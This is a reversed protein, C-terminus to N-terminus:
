QGARVPALLPEDITHGEGGRRAVAPALRRREGAPHSTHTRHGHGAPLDQDGGPPDRVGTSGGVEVKRFLQWVRSGEGQGAPQRGTGVRDLDAGDRQVAAVELARAAEVPECHCRPREQPGTAPLTLPCASSIAFSFSRPWTAAHFHPDYLPGSLNQSGMRLAERAKLLIPSCPWFDLHLDQPDFVVRGHEVTRSDGDQRPGFPGDPGPAGPPWAAPRSGGPGCSTRPLWGRVATRGSPPRRPRPRPADTIPPPKRRARPVPGSPEGVTRVADAVVQPTADGVVEGDVITVPEGVTRVTDM